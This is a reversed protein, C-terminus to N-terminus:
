SEPPPPNRKVSRGRNTTSRGSTSDRSASRASNPISAASVPSCERGTNSAGASARRRTASHSASTSAPCPKAPGRITSCTPAPVGALRQGTSCQRASTPRSTPRSPARTTNTPSLPSPVIEPAIRPGPGRGPTTSAVPRSRTTSSAARNSCASTKAPASEPGAWRAAAAPVGVTTRNLPVFRRRCHRGQPPCTRTTRWATWHEGHWRRLQGQRSWGQMLPIRGSSTASAISRNQTSAPRSPLPGPLPERGPALACLSSSLTPNTLTRPSFPPQRVRAVRPHRRGAV